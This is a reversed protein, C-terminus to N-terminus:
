VHARGIKFRQRSFLLAFPFEALGNGLRIADVRAEVRARDRGHIMCFLNYPWEPPRRPRRYCLTVAPDASLRSAVEEIREDPIDQVLMGNARYGLERHRVVVGFRKVAGSAILAEVTDIVTQEDTGAAEAIAAYPEATLPLGRQMAAIIAETLDAM